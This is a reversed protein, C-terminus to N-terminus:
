SIVETLADFDPITAILEGPSPTHTGRAADDWPDGYAQGPVTVFNRPPQVLDLGELARGLAAMLPFQAPDPLVGGRWTTTFRTGEAMVGPLGEPYLSGSPGIADSIRQCYVRWRDKQQWALDTLLFLKGLAQCSVLSYSYYPDPEEDKDMGYPGFWKGPDDLVWTDSLALYRKLLEDLNDHVVETLAHYTRRDGPAWKLGLVVLAGPAPHAPWALGGALAAYEAGTVSDRWVTSPPVALTTTGEIRDIQRNAPGVDRGPLHIQHVRPM